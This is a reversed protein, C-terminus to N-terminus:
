RPSEFNLNLSPFCNFKKEPGFIPTKNKCGALFIVLCKEGNKKEIESDILM